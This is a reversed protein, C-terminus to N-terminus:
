FPREVATEGYVQLAEAGGFPFPIKESGDWLKENQPLPDGKEREVFGLTIKFKELKRGHLAM